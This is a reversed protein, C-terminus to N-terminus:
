ADKDQQGLIIIRFIFISTYTTTPTVPANDVTPMMNLNMALRIVLTESHHSSQNAMNAMTLQNAGSLLNAEM